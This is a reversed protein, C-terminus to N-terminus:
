HNSATEDSLLVEFLGWTSFAFVAALPTAMKWNMREIFAFVMVLFLFAAVAFGVTELTLCFLALAASHALLRPFEAPAAEYANERTCLLSTGILLLAALFPFLGAGPQGYAWLHLQLANAAAGLGITALTYPVLRATNM